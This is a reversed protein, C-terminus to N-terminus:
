EAEFADAPIDASNFVLTYDYWSERRISWAAYALETDVAAVPVTFQHQEGVLTFEHHNAEDTLAQEGTGVYLKGFGTASLTVLATMEGDLVTLQCDVINFMSSSTTVTIGYTGNKIKGGATDAAPEEVPVIAVGNGNIADQAHKIYLDQVGKIQGLGEIVSEVEYGDNLLITKWADEEDGAMDNNAHDGAVVMFPRLVVKSANMTKLSAQIDEITAGGEVTAILYDTYGKAHLLDQLKTYTANAAHHTGHGMLVIATGDGRYSATESIFAEVVAEYDADDILLPHGVAFSDFRNAYPTIAAIVDDYEYGSMVTTPQIVVEKVGDQVLRDMAQEINDVNLGDREALKDIIIQSTFSRRIQYDPYAAKFAAEIAGITLQRSQNFSTGFSVVLMVKEAPTTNVIADSDNVGEEFSASAAPPAPVSPAAPTEPAAPASPAAQAQGPVILEQGVFILNIDRLSNAQAFDQYTVGYKAAIEWLSDGKAVVYVLQGDANTYESGPPKDSLPPYPSALVSAPAGLVFIVALLTILNRKLM